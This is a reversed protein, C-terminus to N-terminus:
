FPYLSESSVVFLRLISREVTGIQANLVSVYAIMLVVYM